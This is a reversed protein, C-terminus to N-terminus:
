RAGAAAARKGDLVQGQVVVAKVGYGVEIAEGNGPMLNDSDVTGHVRRADMGPPADLRMQRRPTSTLRGNNQRGGLAERRLSANVSVGVSVSVETMGEVGEFQGGIMYYRGVATNEESYGKLKPTWIFTVPASDALWLCVQVARQSAAAAPDLHCRVDPGDGARTPPTTLAAPWGQALAHTHKTLPSHGM